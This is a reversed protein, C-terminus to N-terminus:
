FERKFIFKIYSIRALGYILPSGRGNFKGATWDYGDMKNKYLV